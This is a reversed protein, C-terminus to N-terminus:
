GGTVTVVVSSSITLGDVQVPTHDDHHLELLITHMGDIAPCSSIIADCPSDVAVVANYPLDPSDCASLGGDPNPDVFLHIHGCNNSTKSCEGSGPLALTFNMLTFDVTVVEDPGSDVGHIGVTSHNAPSTIEIGPTGADADGGPGGSSSGSSSSGDNESSAGGDSASRSGGSGNECAATSLAIACAITTAFCPWRLTVPKM